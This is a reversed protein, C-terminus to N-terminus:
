VLIPENLNTTSVIANSIIFTNTMFAHSEVVCYYSLTGTFGLPLQFELSGGTPIGESFTGRSTIPFTSATLRGQDSIFFPHGSGRAGGDVFRYRNGRVFEYSSVDISNGDIQFGFFPSTFSGGRVIIEIV